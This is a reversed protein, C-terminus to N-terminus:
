VQNPAQVIFLPRQNIKMLGHNDSNVKECMAHAGGLVLLLILEFPQTTTTVLIDKEM